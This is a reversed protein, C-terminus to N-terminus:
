TNSGMDARVKAYICQNINKVANVYLKALVHAVDVTCHLHPLEFTIKKILSYFQAGGPVIKYNAVSKWRSGPYM